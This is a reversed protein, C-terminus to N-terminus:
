VVISDNSSLVNCEKLLGRIQVLTSFNQRLDSSQNSFLSSNIIVIRIASCLSSSPRPYSWNSQTPPHFRFASHHASDIADIIHSM